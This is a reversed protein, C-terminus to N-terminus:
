QEADGQPYGSSLLLLVVGVATAAYKEVSKPKQLTKFKRSTVASRLLIVIAIVTLYTFALVLM